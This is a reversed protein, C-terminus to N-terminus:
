ASNECRITGGERSGATGSDFSTRWDASIPEPREPPPEKLETGCHVLNAASKRTTGTRGACGRRARWAPAGTVASKRLFVTDLTGNLIAIKSTLM